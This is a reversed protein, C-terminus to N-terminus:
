QKAAHGDKKKDQDEKDALKKKSSGGPFKMYGGNAHIVTGDKRIVYNCYIWGDIMFCNQAARLRKLRQKSLKMPHKEESLWAWYSGGGFCKFVWLCVCQSTNSNRRVGWLNAGTPNNVRVTRGSIPESSQRSRETGLSTFQIFCSQHTHM